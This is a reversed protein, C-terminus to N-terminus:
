HACPRLASGPTPPVARETRLQAYMGRAQRCVTRFLRLLPRLAPPTSLLADALARVHCSELGGGRTRFHLPSPQGFLPMPRAGSRHRSEEHLSHPVAPIHSPAWNHADHWRQSLASTPPLLSPLPSALVLRETKIFAMPRRGTANQARRGKSIGMGADEVDRTGGYRGASRETTGRQWRAQTQAPAEAWLAFTAAAVVECPPAGRRRRNERPGRAWTSKRRGASRM